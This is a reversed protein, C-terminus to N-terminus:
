GGRRSETREQTVKSRLCSLRYQNRCISFLVFPLPVLPLIAFWSLGIWFSGLIPGGFCVTLYVTVDLTHGSVGFTQYRPESGEKVEWGLHQQFGLLREIDRIRDLKQIYIQRNHDCYLIWISMVITVLFSAPYFLVDVTEKPIQLLFGWFVFVGAILVTGVQWPFADYHMYADNAAAYEALLYDRRPEDTM